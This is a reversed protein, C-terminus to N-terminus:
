FRTAAVVSGAADLWEIASVTYTPPPEAPASVSARWLNGSVADTRQAGDVLTLRVAAVGDPVIDTFHSTGASRSAVFRPSFTEGRRM